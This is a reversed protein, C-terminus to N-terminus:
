LKPPTTNAGRPKHSRLERILSPVRARQLPLLRLWQVVLSTGMKCINFIHVKGELSIM